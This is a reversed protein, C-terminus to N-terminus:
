IESQGQSKNQGWPQMSQLLGTQWSTAVVVVTAIAVETEDVVVDVAGTVVVVVEDIGQATKTRLISFANVTSKSPLFWLFKQKLIIKM